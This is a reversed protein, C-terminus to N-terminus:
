QRPSYSNGTTAQSDIRWGCLSPSHQNESATGAFGKDNTVVDAEGDEAGFSILNTDAYFRGLVHRHVALFDVFSDPVLLGVRSLDGEISLIRVEMNKAIRIAHVNKRTSVRM